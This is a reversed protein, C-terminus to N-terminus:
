AADIKRYRRLAEIRAYAATEEDRVRAKIAANLEDVLPKVTRQLVEWERQLSIRSYHGYFVGELYRSDFIEKHALIENEIIRIDRPIM